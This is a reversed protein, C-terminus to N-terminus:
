QRRVVILAIDDSRRANGVFRHVENLIATHVEAAPHGAYALAVDLLRDEGFFEGNENQAETIGDTFLIVSEGPHLHITEQEYEIDPLMGLILGGCQLTKWHGDPFVH